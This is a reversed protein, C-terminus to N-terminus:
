TAYDELRGHGEFLGSKFQGKYFFSPSVMTGYGYPAGEVYDGEYIKKEEMYIYKGKGTMKDYQWDGEYSDGTAKIFLKGKGHRKGKLFHGIFVNGSHFTIKGQGQM